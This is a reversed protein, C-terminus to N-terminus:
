LLLLLFFCQKSVIVRDLCVSLFAAADADVEAAFVRFFAGPETAADLLRWADDDAGLGGALFVFVFIFVAALFASSAFARSAFSRANIFCM